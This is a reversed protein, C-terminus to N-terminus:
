LAFIEFRERKNHSTFLHKLSSPQPRPVVELNLSGRRDKGAVFRGGDTDLTGEEEEGGYDDTVLHMGLSSICLSGVPM